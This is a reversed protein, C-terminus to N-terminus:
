GRRGRPRPARPRFWKGCRAGGVVDLVVLQEIDAALVARRVVLTEADLTAEAEVVDMIRLPEGLRQDAFAAHALVDVVGEVGAM